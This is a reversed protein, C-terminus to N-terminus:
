RLRSTTITANKAIFISFREHFSIIVSFVQRWAINYCSCNITFHLNRTGFMYLEIAPMHVLLFKKMM